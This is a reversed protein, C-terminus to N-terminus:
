GCICSGPHIRTEGVARGTITWSSYLAATASYEEIRAVSPDDITWNPRAVFLYSCNSHFERDRGWRSRNLIHVRIRKSGGVPVVIEDGPELDPQLDIVSSCPFPLGIEVGAGGCAAALVLLAVSPLRLKRLTRVGSMRDRRLGHRGSDDMHGFTTRQFREDRDTATDAYLETSHQVFTHVSGDYRRHDLNNRGYQNGLPVDALLRGLRKRGM